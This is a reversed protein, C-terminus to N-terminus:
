ARRRSPLSPSAITEGAAVLEYGQTVACEGSTALDAVALTPGALRLYISV